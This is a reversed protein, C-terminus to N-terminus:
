QAWEEGWEGDGGRSIEGDYGGMKIPEGEGVLGAVQLESEMQRVTQISSLMKYLAQILAAVEVRHMRAADGGRGEQGLLIQMGTNMGLTAVKGHLRCVSCQVCNMLRMMDRARLRAQWLGAGGQYSAHRRLNSQAAGVCGGCLLPISLLEELQASIAEGETGEGYDFNILKDSADNCANLLLMCGYYLNEVAGPQERLRRRYESAALEHEGQDRMSRVIHGSIAAHLGSVARNFDRKWEAEGRFCIKRYIFRWVETGNYRTYAEPYQRLDYYMPQPMDWRAWGDLEFEYESTDRQSLSVPVDEDDCPLCECEQLTCEDTEQPLYACSALMDVSYLCFFDSDVIQKLKAVTSDVQRNIADVGRDFESARSSKEFGSFWFVPPAAGVAKVGETAAARVRSGGLRASRTTGVASRAPGAHFAGGVTVVGALAALTPWLSAACFPAM